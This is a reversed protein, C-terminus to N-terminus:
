FKMNIIVIIIEGYNGILIIYVSNNYQHAKMVVDIFNDTSGILPNIQQKQLSYNGTYIINDNKGVVHFQVGGIPRSSVTAM